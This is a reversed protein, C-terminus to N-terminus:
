PAINNDPDNARDTFAAVGRQNWGYDVDYEDLSDMGCDGAEWANPGGIGSKPTSCVAFPQVWTLTSTARFGWVVGYRAARGGFRL